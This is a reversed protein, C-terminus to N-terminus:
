KTVDLSWYFGKESAMLPIIQTVADLAIASYIHPFKEQAAISPQNDSELHAPEEWKISATLKDVDICLVILDFQGQYFANAVKIVQKDTSCHIFGETELSAARYEGQEQAKQWAQSSTIHFIM